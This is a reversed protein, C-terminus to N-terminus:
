DHFLNPDIASIGHARGGDGAFLYSPSADSQTLDFM